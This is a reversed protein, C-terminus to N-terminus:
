SSPLYDHRDLLIQISSSFKSLGPNSCGKTMNYKYESDEFQNTGLNEHLNLSVKIRPGAQGLM